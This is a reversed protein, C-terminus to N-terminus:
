GNEGRNEATLVLRAKRGSEARNLIDWEKGDFVLRTEATVDARYRITFKARLFATQQNASQDERQGASPYEVSAWVTAIGSWTIVEGGFGDRSKTPIQLEVRRDLNGITDGKRPGGKM